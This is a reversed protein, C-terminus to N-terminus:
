VHRRAELVRAFLAPNDYPRATAAKHIRCVVSHGTLPLPQWNDLDCNCRMGEVKALYIAVECPSVPLDEPGASM